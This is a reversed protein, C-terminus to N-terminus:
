IQRHAVLATRIASVFAHESMRVTIDSATCGVLERLHQSLQDVSRYGLQTAVNRASADQALLQFARAVRGSAVLRRPSVFGARKLHRFLARRSMGAALALDDAVRYRSPYSFMNRVARQLAPPVRALEPELAAILAAHM